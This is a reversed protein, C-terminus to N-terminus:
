TNPIGDTIESDGFRAKWAEDFKRLSEDTLPHEILIDFFEPTITVAQCGCLALERITKGTRFSAGLVKTPFGAMRLASVIEAVLQVGDCEYYMDGGNKKVYEDYAEQSAAYSAKGIHHVYPAVYDAGGKAALLAQNLSHIVTMCVPIVPGAPPLAKIQKLAKYGEKCAPIKVVVQAGFYQKLAVAQKTMEEATKATVQIFVRHSTGRLYQRYASFLTQLEEDSKSLINPNTTFGDIPYFSDVERVAEIDAIDVFFEM